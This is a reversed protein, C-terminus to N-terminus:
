STTVQGAPAPIIPNSVDNMRPGTSMYTTILKTPAAHQYAIQGTRKVTDGQLNLYMGRVGSSFEVM